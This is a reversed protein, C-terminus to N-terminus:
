TCAHDDKEQEKAHYISSISLFYSPTLCANSCHWIWTVRVNLDGYPGRIADIMVVTVNSLWQVNSSGLLVHSKLLLNSQAVTSCKITPGLPHSM